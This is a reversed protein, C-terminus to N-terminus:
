ANCKESKFNCQCTDTIKVSAQHQETAITSITSIGLGGESPNLSLLDRHNNFVECQGGFLAPLFKDSLLSDIPETFQEFGEITRIFYSFKSKYGKTFAAYAAQPQTDAIECLPELDKTWREVLDGCYERRYDESGICAGLHRKGRTTINM